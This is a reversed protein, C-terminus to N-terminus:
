TNYRNDEVNLGAGIKTLEPIAHSAVLHMVRKLWVLCTSFLGWRRASRMYRALGVAYLAAEEDRFACLILFTSSFCKLPEHVTVRGEAKRRAARCPWNLRCLSESRAPRDPSQIGTPPSVKQVLVSRM